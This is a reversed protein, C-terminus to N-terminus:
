EGLHFRMGQDDMCEATLGYPQQMPGELVQGGAAVVRETAAVVDGVQWMPVIATRNAGGRVGSMPTIDSTVQWGDPVSGPVFQWGLVTGYFDRFAAADTTEYTVYSIGVAPRPVDPRVQFLAFATGLTDVCDVVQGWSRDQVGGATGGLDRVLDAVATIDDVAYAGFSSGDGAYIALSGAVGIVERRPGADTDYEWGLVAAYFRAAADVDSPQWSFYALDGHRIPDAVARVPGNLMWRHGAPDVIVANRSGYADYPERQVTGGAARVRTLTADTDDVAIVLTVSAGSPDPAVVGIEPHADALYVTGGGMTLECHGIRGDPMVIPEGVEADFVTRYFEIAARADAAALYPLAGPYPVRQETPATMTTMSVVGRPLGLAHVLRARLATAFSPDPAVPTVDAALISLPDTDPM